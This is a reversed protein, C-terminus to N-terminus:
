GLQRLGLGLLLGAVGLVPVWTGFDHAAGGVAAGVLLGVILGAGVISPHRQDAKANIPSAM